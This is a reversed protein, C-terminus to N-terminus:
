RGDIKTRRWRSKGAARTSLTVDPDDHTGGDETQEAPRASGEEAKVEIKGDPLSSPLPADVEVELVRITEHSSM